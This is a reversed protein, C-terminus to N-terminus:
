IRELILSKRIEGAPPEIATRRTTSLLNAFQGAVANNLALGAGKGAWLAADIERRLVKQRVQQIGSIDAIAARKFSIDGLRHM